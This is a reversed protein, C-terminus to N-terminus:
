RSIGSTSAALVALQELADAAQALFEGLFDAEERRRHV